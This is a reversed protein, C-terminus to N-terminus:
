LAPPPPDSYLVHEETPIQALRAITGITAAAFGRVLAMAPGVEACSIEAVFDLGAGNPGDPRVRNQLYGASPDWKVVARRLEPGLESRWRHAFADADTGASRAVAVFLIKQGPRGAGIEACETLVACDRVPRAFTEAEDARTLRGDPDAAHALRAAEDRFVVVAVGDCSALAGDGGPEIRDCQAYHSVNRWRPLSMGLRGHQRWRAKFADADLRPHRRAFYILKPAAATM